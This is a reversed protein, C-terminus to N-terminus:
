KLLIIGSDNKKLEFFNDLCELELCEKLLQFDAYDAWFNHKYSWELLDLCMRYERRGFDTMEDPLQYLSIQFPETKEIACFIYDERKAFDRYFADTINYSYSFVDRKFGKPSGDQTTKLDVITKKDGCFVDPRLKIKLGTQEDVTYISMERYSDKMIDILAQNKLASEGMKIIADMEDEMIITRDKNDNEWLECDIKGVKTRKDFKPSVVYNDFFQHPELICEHLASGLAFHRGETKATKFKVDYKKYYYYLPSRSFNKIDSASIHDKKGLYTSFSDKTYETNGILAM